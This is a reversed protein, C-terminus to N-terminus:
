HAGHILIFFIDCEVGENLAKAVPPRQNSIAISDLFIHNCLIEKVVFFMVFLHLFPNRNGTDGRQKIQFQFKSLPEGM